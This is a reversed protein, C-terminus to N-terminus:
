DFPNDINDEDDEDVDNDDNNVDDKVNKFNLNKERYIHKVRVIIYIIESINLKELLLKKELENLANILTDLLDKKIENKSFLSTLYQKAYDILKFAEYKKLLEQVKIYDESKYIEADAILKSIEKRSLRQYNKLILKKTKKSDLNTAEATLIGNTDIKFTAKIKPEGAIMPPIGDLDFTGLKTNESSLERNGQIVEFTICNQFDELTTYGETYECPIKSNMPIIVSFIDDHITTGLNLPTIDSIKVLGKSCYEAYKAAGISVAEDPNLNNKQSIKKNTIQHVLKKFSPIRSTGGVLIVKNFKQNKIEPFELFEKIKSAIRRLIEESSDEFEKKSITISPSIPKDEITGIKPFNIKFETKNKFSFKVKYEKSLNRIIGFGEDSIKLGHFDNNFKKLIINYIVNDFDDGGILDDGYSGVIDWFGDGDYNVLSMDFTGGGIDFVLINSAKQQIDGYAIAAASPENIIEVESIGALAAAELTAKRQNHNFYAPVTIVINKLVYEESSYNEYFIKLVGKLIEASVVQVPLLRNQNSCDLSLKKESNEKVKYNLKKLIDESIENFSKGILRKTSYFTNLPDEELFDLADEGIEINSKGFHVVSSILRSGGNSLLTTVNRNGEEKVSVVTNTTGLDIGLYLEKLTQKKAIESM